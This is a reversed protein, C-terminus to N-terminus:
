QSRTSPGHIFAPTHQLSPDRRVCSSVLFEGVERRIRKAYHVIPDMNLDTAIRYLSGAIAILASENEPIIATDPSDIITQLHPLERWIPLFSFFEVAPPGPRHHRPLHFTRLAPRPHTPQQRHQLRIGMHPPLRLNKRAVRYRLHAPSRPAHPYLVPSRARHPGLVGLHALRPRRPAPRHPHIPLRPTHAHPPVVARHTEDNGCAIIAAGEPLRYEGCERELTIQYLAAQLMPVCSPLEELNILYRDTSDTPPLFSPPMWVTRGNIIAPLGRLDVPDLLLTRVDIYIRGTAAAVQRAIQSKACGPPGWIMVPQRLDILAALTTALQSPKLTYDASLTQLHPRHM